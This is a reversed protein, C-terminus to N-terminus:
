QNKDLYNVFKLKLFNILKKPRCHKFSTNSNKKQM